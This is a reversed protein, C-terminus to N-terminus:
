AMQCRQPVGVQSVGNGVGVDGRAGVSGAEWREGVGVNEDRGESGCVWELM